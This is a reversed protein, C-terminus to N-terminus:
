PSFEEKETETEKVNRILHEQINLLSKMGECVLRNYGNSRTNSMEDIYIWGSEMAGVLEKRQKDYSGNSSPSIVTTLRGKGKIKGDWNDAHNSGPNTTIIGLSGEALSALM